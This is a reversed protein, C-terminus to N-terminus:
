GEHAFEGFLEKTKAVYASHAAEATPFYGIHINKGSLATQARWQQTRRDLYVGKFGSKNYNRRRANAKNQQDTASRLNVLRNDDRVRNIHDIQNTPWMGHMYRWALRHARYTRGDLTIRRYGKANISGAILGALAKGAAVRWRFVGTEPDYDLLERLRSDTILPEGAM